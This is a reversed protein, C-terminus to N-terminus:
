SRWARTGSIIGDDRMNKSNRVVLVTIARELVFQSIAQIEM